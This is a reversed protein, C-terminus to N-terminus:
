VIASSCACSSRTAEQLYRQTLGPMNAVELAARALNSNVSIGALNDITAALTNRTEEITIPLAYLRVNVKDRIRTLLEDAAVALENSPNDHLRLISFLFNTDVIVRLEASHGQTQRLRDLAASSLGSAEAFFYANLTRLLYARVDPDEPDLFAVIAGKLRDDFKGLSPIAAMFNPAADEAADQALLEYTRAGLEQVLPTLIQEQLHSWAEAPDEDIGADVLAALYREQLRAEQQRAREVDGRAQERTAESLKVRDDVQVVVDGAQVLADIQPALDASSAEVGFSRRLIAPLEKPHITGTASVTAIIFRQIACGM